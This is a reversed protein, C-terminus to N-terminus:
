GPWRGPPGSRGGRRGGSRRACRCGSRSGARRPRGPRAAVLELRADLVGLALPDGVGLGTLHLPVGGVAGDDALGLPVGLGGTAPGAVASAPPSPHPSGASRRAAASSRPRRRRPRRAAASARRRRRGSALWRRCRRRFFWCTASHDFRVLLPCADPTTLPTRRRGEYATHERVVATRDDVARTGTSAGPQADRRTVAESSATRRLANSRAQRRGTPRCARSSSPM